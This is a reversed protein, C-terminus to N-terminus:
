SQSPSSRPCLLFYQSTQLVADSSSITGGLFRKQSLLHLKLLLRPMIGMNEDGEDKNYM